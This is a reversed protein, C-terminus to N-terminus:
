CARASASAAPSSTPSPTSRPASRSRAGRRAHHARRAQSRAAGLLAPDAAAGFVGDRQALLAALPQPPDLGVAGYLPYAADVAKVEVLATRGDRTRAMAACPPPSRCAAAATSSRGSRRRQGRAPEALVRRRRRPDVRGDRALGDVLGSPVSGVGAIATSASRSAPSSSTSAACAAACSARPMACRWRAGSSRRPVSAASEVSMGAGRRRRREGDIRGRACGCWATAASPWRRTTPSSCWRPAAGQGAFLLDIIEPGTAEDLNGTPEDAILIAPNPALARALAVRQQEGGSLEAPYHDRRDRLGVAALERPATTRTTSAPSNSRCRSM